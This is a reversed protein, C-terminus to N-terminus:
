KFLGYQPLAHCKYREILPQGTKKEYQNNLTHFSSPKFRVGTMENILDALKLLGMSQYGSMHFALNIYKDIHYRVKEKRARQENFKKRDFSPRKIEKQWRGASIAKRVLRYRPFIEVYVTPYSVNHEKAIQKIIETQSYLGTATLNMFDTQWRIGWDIEPYNSPSLKRDKAITELSM